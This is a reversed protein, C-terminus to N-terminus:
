VHEQLELIANLCQFLVSVSTLMEDGGEKLGEVVASPKAM